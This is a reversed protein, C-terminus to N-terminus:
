AVNVNNLINKHHSLPMNYTNLEIIEYNHESQFIKKILKNNLEHGPQPAFVSGLFPLGSMYFDGM